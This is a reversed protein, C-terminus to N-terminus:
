SVALQNVVEFDGPEGRILKEYESIVAKIIQHTLDLTIVATQTVAMWDEDTKCVKILIEEVDKAHKDDITSHSYFFTMQKKNLEMGALMSDMFGKIYAYSREAWFSYGLRQVPNGNQSIWYLYAILLQTPTLAPPMEHKPDTIPIGMSRLDHLAMLEHGTEELAHELCFQMYQININKRNVAVLAQNRATHFAYHYVQTLYLAYIRRDKGMISSVFQIAQPQELIYQWKQAILNDLELFKQNAM